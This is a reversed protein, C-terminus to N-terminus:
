LWIIVDLTHERGLLLFYHLIDETDLIVILEFIVTFEDVYDEVFFLRFLQETLFLHHQGFNEGLLLFHYVLIGSYGEKGVLVGVFVQYFLEFLRLRESVINKDSDEVFFHLLFYNFAMMRAFIDPHKNRSSKEGHFM